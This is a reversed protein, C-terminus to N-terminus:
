RLGGAKGPRDTAARGRTSLGCGPQSSHNRAVSALGRGVSEDPLPDGHKTATEVHLQLAEEAAKVAEQYSQGWNQCGPLSPFYAPFGGDKPHPEITLAYVLTKAM